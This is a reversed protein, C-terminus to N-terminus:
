LRLSQDWRFICVYMRKNVVWTSIFFFLIFHGMTSPPELTYSLVLSVAFSSCPTAHNIFVQSLNTKGPHFCLHWSKVSLISTLTHDLVDVQIRVSNLNLNAKLWTFVVTDAIHFCQELRHLRYFIKASVCCDWSGAVYV